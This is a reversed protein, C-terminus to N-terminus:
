CSFSVQTKEEAKCRHIIQISYHGVVVVVPFFSNKNLNEEAFFKNSFLKELPTARKRDGSFVM